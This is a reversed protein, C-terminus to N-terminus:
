LFRSRTLSVILATDTLFACSSPRRKRSLTPLATLPREICITLLSVRQVSRARRRPSRLAPKAYSRVGAARGVWEDRLSIVNTTLYVGCAPALEGELHGSGM